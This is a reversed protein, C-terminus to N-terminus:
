LAEAKNRLNQSIRSLYDHAESALKVAQVSAVSPMELGAIMDAFALLKDKDPALLAKRATEEADAKAKAEALTKARQEAELEERKLREDEAIKREAKLKEEQEEAEAKLRVNEQRIREQEDAAAKAAAIRDAEAKAEAEKQATFAEKSGALLTTFAEDSMDRLSYLSVDAVYQSLQEVREAHKKAAREAQRLEAFKEQGELHEEVPVILAKIINAMGDIAKGERLSQEKLSKRTNEVEVRVAKLALRKTRAERMLDTQSEETVVLASAGAALTKADAYAKGFNSLLTEVKTQELGTAVNALEQTENNEM